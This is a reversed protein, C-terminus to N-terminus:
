GTTLMGSAIGTVTLRILDPDKEEFAIMQLLNLPHIMASRLYISAGLWPKYWLLQSAQSIGQIFQKAGEYETKFEDLILDCQKSSMGSKTLYMKWIPLEVKALTFGLARVYSSFIPDHEYAKRLRARESPSTNKWVSGVGWWSPFLIRTQTWCLVWPIARLSHITLNKPRRKSPRSGIKLVRLYPYPTAREVLDFFGPSEIKRRYELSVRQAFNQVVQSPSHAQYHSELDQATQVLHDLQSLLIQSSAFSREVMEGQITAKYNELASQPWWAMQDRISGGGRDISGGSGHFFIPTVSRKRILKDMRIMADAISVRSPLVGGEKASDSYGVMIELSSGWYKKLADQIQPHDLIKQVLKESIKLSEPEEFLPIIPLKAEGMVRIMIDLAAEIHEMSSAMSIILGRAYWKPDGGRSVDRVARLMRVIAQHNSKRATLLIDSSERLELPVVLGPFLDLLQTVHKLCPHDVGIWSEYDKRFLELKAKLKQIRLGDGACVKQIQTLNQSLKKYRAAWKPNKLTHLTKEVVKLRQRVWKLLLRRSVQLSGLLTKENVGPHGDKDGGVWSRIFVPVQTEQYEILTSLVDDRLLITYIFEAEDIVSPKSSRVIPLKWALELAHKLQERQLEFHTSFAQTLIQQISHFVEINVPSRAETPHATLVYVIRKPHLPKSEVPSTERHSVRFARYANECANMLELMLTYSRALNMRQSRDLKQFFEFTDNLKKYSAGGRLQVMRRRVAEVFRFGEAGTERCIIEGLLLVSDNVMKRLDDPLDNKV